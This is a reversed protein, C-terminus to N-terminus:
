NVGAVSVLLVTILSHAETGLAAHNLHSAFRHEERDASFAPSPRAGRERAKCLLKVPGRIGQGKM